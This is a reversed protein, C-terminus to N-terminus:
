FHLLNKKLKLTRYVISKGFSTTFNKIDKLSYKDYIKSAKSLKIVINTKNKKRDAKLFIKFIGVQSWIQLFYYNM